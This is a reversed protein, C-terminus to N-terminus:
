DVSPRSVEHGGIERANIDTCFTPCLKLGTLPTWLAEAALLHVGSGGTGDNANAPHLELSVCAPAGAEASPPQSGTLAPPSGVAAKPAHLRQAASGGPAQPAHATRPRIPPRGSQPLSAPPASRSSDARAAPSAASSGRVGRGGTLAGAASGAGSAPHPHASHSPRPQTDSIAATGVAAGPEPGARLRRGRPCRHCPAGM